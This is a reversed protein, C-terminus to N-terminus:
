FSDQDSEILSIKYRYVRGAPESLEQYPNFGSEELTISVRRSDRNPTATSSSLPMTALMSQATRPEDDSSRKSPNMM